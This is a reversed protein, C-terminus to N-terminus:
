QKGLGAAGFGRRPRVPVQPGTGVGGNHRPSKCACPICGRPSRPPCAAPSAVPDNAPEGRVARSDCLTGPPPSLAWAAGPPPGRGFGDLPHVILLDFPSTTAFTRRSRIRRSSSSLTTGPRLSPRESLLKSFSNSLLPLNFLLNSDSICRAPYSLEAMFTERTGTRSASYM